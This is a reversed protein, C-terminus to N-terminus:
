ASYYLTFYSEEAIEAAGREPRSVPHLIFSVPLPESGNKKGQM